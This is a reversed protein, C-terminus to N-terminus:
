FPDDGSEMIMREIAEADEASLQGGGPGPDGGIPALPPLPAFPRIPVLPLTPLVPRLPQIPQLPLTPLVPRLPVLPQLPLTPHVPQLPLTPLIPHIPQLPFAPQIPVLPVLPRLPFTICRLKALLVAKYADVLGNGTAADPGVTAPINFIPNNTGTTVDRASKMLVDKVQAPTLKSCAQKILAAVGAVQPAAASTGSFAAWGDTTTTEDGNPHTGGAEQVDLDDGPQVPLMIYQAGPRMGVLGSVDPVRRGPYINSIFGSAYDSARMSGDPNMFVGGASIVDPHQGPFGWHGNGASFVVIIGSAVAAAVAAALANSAASLPGFQFDFGWSCTIIAPNLAVAANFAGTANVIVTNLSGALLAKVPLLEVDPAVAFLNASEGTGHGLQDHTPDATAPGLTVATARYGRQDFFPHRFWGSDVMAVRVGKGTIGSRHAKDANCGLSVDAPVDLHWYSKTPPFANAAMFYRPEELAVGELVDAFRSGEVSILGRLPTDPSDLFTATERKGQEKVTVLEETVLRSGFAREYTTRSGAINISMSTLQLVDFGADQLMYAARQIDSEDSAFNGVTSPNALVGAELMSVGGVSRPSAIAYIRSPFDGTGGRRRGRAAGQGASAKKAPAKKAPAKKAPAKKAAAKKAAM